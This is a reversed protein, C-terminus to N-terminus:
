EKLFVILYSTFVNVLIIITTPTEKLFLTTDSIKVNSPVELLGVPLSISSKCSNPQCNKKHRGFFRLSEFSKCSGYFTLEKYHSAKREREYKPVDKKAKNLNVQYIGERKLRQFEIKLRGKSVAHRLKCIKAM